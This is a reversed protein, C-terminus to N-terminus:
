GHAMRQGHERISHFNVQPWREEVIKLSVRTPALYVPNDDIDKAMRAAEENEFKRRTADDPFTV